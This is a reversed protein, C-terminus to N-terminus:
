SRLSCPRLLASHCPLAPPPAGVPVRLLAAAACARLATMAAQLSGCPLLRRCAINPWAGRCSAPGPPLRLGLQHTEAATQAGQLSCCAVGHCWAGQESSGAEGPAVQVLIHGPQQILQVDGTGDGRRWVQVVAPCRLQHAAAATAHTAGGGAGTSSSPSCRPAQLESKHHTCRRLATACNCCSAATPLRLSREAAAM